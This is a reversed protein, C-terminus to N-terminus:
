QQDDAFLPRKPPGELVGQALKLQAMMRIEHREFQNSLTIARDFDSLAFYVANQALMTLLSGVGGEATMNWEGNRLYRNDFGDLETAASVLENLRRIITQMMTFCRDSDVQCYRVAIGIRYQMQWRQPPVKELLESARDLLKVTTQRNRTGIDTAKRFLYHFTENEDRLEGAEKILEASTDENVIRQLGDIEKLVEQKHPSEWKFEDVLQRAREFDGSDLVKRIVVSEGFGRFEPFKPIMAFLDDLSGNQYVDAYRTVEPSWEYPFGAKRALHKLPAVRKPDVKEMLPVVLGLRYCFGDNDLNKKKGCGAQLAVDTFYNMLDRFAPDRGLSPEVLRALMFYFQEHEMMHRINQYPAAKVIEVLLASAHDRSKKTLEYILRLQNQSVGQKLSERGLKLAFDLNRKSFLVALRLNLENKSEDSIYVDVPTTEKLFRLAWEPDFMGIRLATDERLKVFNPRAVYRDPDNDDREFGAKIEKTVAAFMERAKAEDHTWLSMAINSGLRARNEGSQLSGIQTALSELTKYAKQRLAEDAHKDNVQQSLAKVPVLAVAVLFLILYRLSLKM